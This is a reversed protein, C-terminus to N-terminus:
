SRETKEILRGLQETVAEPYQLFIHHDGPINVQECNGLQELFDSREQIEEESMANKMENKLWESMDEPQEDDPIRRRFRIAREYEEETTCDTSIYIKPIDNPKVLDWVRQASTGLQSDESALSRNFLNYKFLRDADSRYEEPLMMAAPSLEDTMFIRMMGLSWMIELEKEDEDPPMDELHSAPTVTDIFLIGAIEDPYTNEWYTAYMGGLSHPMLIYPKQIGANELATRACEVAYEPTIDNRSVESLGYGPREAIVFRCMDGTYVSLSKMAASFTSDRSGPLAVVTYGANEDGVVPMNLKISGASVPAYLGAQALVERDKKHQSINGFFMHLFWILAIIAIVLVVRNLIKRIAILIRMDMGGIM